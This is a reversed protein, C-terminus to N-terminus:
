PTITAASCFTGGTSNIIVHYPTGPVAGAPLTLSGNSDSGGALLTAALCGAGPCPTSCSTALFFTLNPLNLHCGRTLAITNGNLAIQGVCACDVQAQGDIVIPEVTIFVAVGEFNTYVGGQHLHMRANPAYLIVDNLTSNNGIVIAEFTGSNVSTMKVGNVDIGPETIISGNTNVFTATSGAGNTTSGNQLRIKKFNYTGAALTLVCNDKVDLGGYDGPALALAGGAPCVQNSNTVPFSAPVAQPPWAVIPFPGAGPPNPDPPINGCVAVPNGGTSTNYKCVDVEAGTGFFMNDATATGFIKNHAGIRLLGGVDNVGVNGNIVIPGDEMKVATKGFLVYDTGNIVMANAPAAFAFASLLAITGLLVKSRM